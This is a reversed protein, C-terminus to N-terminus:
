KTIRLKLRRFVLSQSKLGDGKWDKRKMDDETAERVFAFKEKPTYTDAEWCMLGAYSGSWTDLLDTTQLLRPTRQKTNVCTWTINM